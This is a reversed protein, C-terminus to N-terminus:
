SNKPLYIRPIFYGMKGQTFVHKFVEMSYNGGDILSAEMEMEVMNNTLRVNSARRRM